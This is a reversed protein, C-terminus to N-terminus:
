SVLTFFLASNTSFLVLFSPVLLCANTLIIDAMFKIGLLDFDGPYLPLLRFASKLDTKALLTGQGMLQIMSVAEDISSYNLHCIDPNIFYNVSDCDPYSLNHILRFDGDKPPVLGVPSVRLTPFPITDFPGGM